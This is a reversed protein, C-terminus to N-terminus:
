FYQISFESAPVTIFRESDWPGSLLNAIYSITGPLRELKLRFTEAIEKSSEFFAEFDYCGTDIIGLRKYHALISEYTLATEEEGYKELCFQYEKWINSEHSLWGRTLFYTPSEAMAVRRAEMSGLVLTICDDVRPIIIEFGKAKLGATANGCQGFVLLVRGVSGSKDALLTSNATDASGKVGSADPMDINSLKDLAKQLRASLKAPTNHLGSEVWAIEHTCGVLRYAAEVEDKLTQCALVVTRMLWDVVEVEEM